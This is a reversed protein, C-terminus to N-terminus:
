SGLAPDVSRFWGPMGPRAVSTVLELYFGYPTDHYSFTMTGDADRAWWLRTMGLGELRDAEAEVDDAWVGLHHGRRRDDFDWLTGADSQILEVHTPRTSYTLRLTVERSGSPTELTSYPLEFPPLFTIGLAPGLSAIAEELDPVVFGVHYVRADGGMTAALVGLEALDDSTAM